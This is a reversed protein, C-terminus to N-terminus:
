SGHRNPNCDDFWKLFGQAEFVVGLCVFVALM